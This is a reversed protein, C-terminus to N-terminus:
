YLRDNSEIKKYNDNSEISDEGYFVSDPNDKLIAYLNPNSWKDFEHFFDKFYSPTLNLVEMARKKTPFSAIIARQKGKIMMMGNFYRQKKINSM